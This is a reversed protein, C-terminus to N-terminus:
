RYVWHPMALSETAEGKFLVSNKGEQVRMLHWWNPLVLNLMRIVSFITRLFYCKVQFRFEFHIFKFVSFFFSPFALTRLCSLVQPMGPVITLHHCRDLSLFILLLWLHYMRVVFYANPSNGTCHSFQQPNNLLGIVHDMNCKLFAVLNISCM